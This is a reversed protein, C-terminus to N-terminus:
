LVTIVECAKRIIKKMTIGIRIPPKPFQIIGSIILAGSIANGRIFLKLNQNNGGANIININEERVSLPTPVPQVIYGGNALYV